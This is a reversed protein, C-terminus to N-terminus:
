IVGQHKGDIIFDFMTFPQLRCTRDDIDPANSGCIEAKIEAAVANCPAPIVLEAGNRQVRCAEINQGKVNITTSDFQMTLTDIKPAAFATTLIGIIAYVAIVMALIRIFEKNM